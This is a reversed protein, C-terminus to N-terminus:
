PSYSIKTVVVKEKKVVTNHSYLLLVLRIIFFIISINTIYEDDHFELLVLQKITEEDLEVEPFTSPSCYIQIDNEIHSLVSHVMNRKSIVLMPHIQLYNSISGWINKITSSNFSYVKLIM